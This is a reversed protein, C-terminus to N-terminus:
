SVKGYKKLQDYFWNKGVELPSFSQDWRKKGTTRAKIDEVVIYTIPFIKALQKVINLKWQWRAKTSPPLGGKVRNYKNKRYPTKRNRRSRRMMRRTEVAKKVHQVADAQINLFTHSESKVTFAEKKSGPDIGIAIEQREEASPDRNLRVCFIGRRFFPSAEKNEIWKRARSPITPMLPDNNKGVVPVCTRYARQETATYVGSRQQNVSPLLAPPASQMDNARGCATLEATKL